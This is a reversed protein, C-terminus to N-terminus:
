IKLEEIPRGAHIHENVWFPRKGKGTWTQDPNMPNRYKPKGKHKGNGNAKRAKPKAKTEAKETVTPALATEDIFRDSITDKVADLLRQRAKTYDEIAKQLNSM